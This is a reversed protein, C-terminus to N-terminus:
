TVAKERRVLLFVGCAVLFVSIVQNFSLGMLVRANPEYYRFFDITFRGIGYLIMLMGFMAGRKHLKPQLAMLIVFILLGKISSYIQTPHLMV